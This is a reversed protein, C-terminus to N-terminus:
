VSSSINEHEITLEGDLLDRTHSVKSELDGKSLTNASLYRMRLEVLLLRHESMVKNECTSIGIVADTTSDASGHSITTEYTDM